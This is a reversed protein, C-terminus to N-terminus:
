RCRRSGRRRRRVRPQDRLLGNGRGASGVVNQIIAIRAQPLRLLSTLNIIRASSTFSVGANRVVEFPAPAGVISARFRCGGGVINLAQGVRRGDGRVTLTATADCGAPINGSPYDPEIRVDFKSVAAARRALALLDANASPAPLQEVIDAGSIFFRPEPPFACFSGPSRVISLRTADDPASTTFVSNDAPTTGGAPEWSLRATYWCDTRGGAQRMVANIEFICEDLSLEVGVQAGADLWPSAYEAKGATPTCAGASRITVRMQWQEERDEDDVMDNVLVFVRVGSQAAAPATVLATTSILLLLVSLPAALRRLHTM